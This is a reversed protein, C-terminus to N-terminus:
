AGVLLGGSRRAQMENNSIVQSYHELELNKINDFNKRSLMLELM